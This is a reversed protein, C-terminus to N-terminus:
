TDCDYYGKLLDQPDLQCTEIRLLSKLQEFNDVPHNVKYTPVPLSLSIGFKEVIELYLEKNLALGNDNIHIAALSPSNAMAESIFRLQDPSLNMGSVEIHCLTCSSNIFEYLALLFDESAQLQSEDAWQEDYLTNYSFNVARFQNPNSAMAEALDKLQKPQLKSWSLDVMSLLPKESVLDTLLQSIEQNNLNM